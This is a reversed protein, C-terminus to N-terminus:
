KRIDNVYSKIGKWNKKELEFNRKSWLCIGAALGESAYNQESLYFGNSLQLISPRSFFDGTDRFLLDEIETHLVKNEISEQFKLGKVFSERKEEENKLEGETPWVPIAMIKDNSLKIYCFFEQLGHLNERVYLFRM